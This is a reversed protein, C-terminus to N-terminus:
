ATGLLKTFNKEHHTYKLSQILESHDHNVKCSLLVRHVNAKQLVTEAHQFLARGIGQKRFKPVVYYWDEKAMKYGIHRLHDYVFFGIWGVLEGDIRAVVLRYNGAADIKLYQDWNIDLPRDKFVNVEDYHAQVFKCIEPKSKVLPEVCITAEPGM